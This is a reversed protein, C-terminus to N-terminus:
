GTDEMTKKYPHVNIDLTEQNKIKEFLYQNNDHEIKVIVLYTSSNGKAVINFKQKPEVNM